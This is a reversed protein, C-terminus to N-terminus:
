RIVNSESRSQHWQPLKPALSSAIFSSILKSCLAISKQQEEASQVILFKYM